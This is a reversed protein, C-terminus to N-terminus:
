LSPGLRSTEAAQPAHTMRWFCALAIADIAVAAIGIAGYGAQKVLTGGLVPGIASGIMVMAPTAAVVRGTVDIRALAGFAFTHTFLMVAVFLSAAVAFPALAASSAIVLALAAQVLPGARLVSAAGLRRQLLAALGSPFMNVIGIAVLIATVTAVGFGRDAGMREVFSYVMAQALAMAGVGVIGFWARPPLRQGSERHARSAASEADAVPFGWAALAAAVAMTIGLAHFLAQGGVRSIFQPATGLLIVAFAGLAMGALGFLRHPNASRGITGHTFSLGTGAALGGVLHLAALAEFRQMQAAAFFCAASLAFGGLAALRGDIRHFRPAFFISAAVAGLLFLTVLAGAQQADLAYATVLTGVWLPLAVMDVMGACHSTMLVLRGSRSDTANRM